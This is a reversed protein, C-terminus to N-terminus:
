QDSLYFRLRHVIPMYDASRVNPYNALIYDRLQYIACMAADGRGRFDVDIFLGHVFFNEILDKQFAVTLADILDPITKM